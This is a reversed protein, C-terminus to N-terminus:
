DIREAKTHAAMPDPLGARIRQSFDPGAGAAAAIANIRSRKRLTEFPLRTDLRRAEYAYEPFYGSLLV